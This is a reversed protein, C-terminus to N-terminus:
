LRVGSKSSYAVDASRQFENLTYISGVAVVAAVACSILFVKM